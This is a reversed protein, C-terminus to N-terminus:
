QQQAKNAHSDGSFCHDELTSGELHATDNLRRLRWRKEECLLESLSANDSNFPYYRPPLRLVEILTVRSTGGHTVIAIRKGFHQQEIEEVASRVRAGIQQWSEGGHGQYTYWEKLYTTFDPLKVIEQWTCGEWSGWCIERWRADVLIPVTVYKRLLQATEHARVLDSTIILDFPIAKKMREGLARVQQRGKDSLCVNRQGQILGQSNYESEGHRILYLIIGNM